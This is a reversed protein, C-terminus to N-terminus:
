RTLLINKLANIRPFLRIFCRIAFELGWMARSLGRRWSRGAACGARLRRVQFPRRRVELLRRLVELLRRLVELLRRLV